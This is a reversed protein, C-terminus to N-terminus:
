AHDQGAAFAQQPTPIARGFIPHAAGFMRQIKAMTDPACYRNCLVKRPAQYVDKWTDKPGVEGCKWGKSTPENPDKSM